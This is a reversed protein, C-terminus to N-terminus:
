VFPADVALNALRDCAGAFAATLIPRPGAPPATKVAKDSENRHRRRGAVAPRSVVTPCRPRRSRFTRASRWGNGSGQEAASM